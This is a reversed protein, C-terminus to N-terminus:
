CLDDLLGTVNADKLMAGTVVEFNAGTVNQDFTWACPKEFSCKVGLKEDFDIDDVNIPSPSPTHLNDQNRITNKIVTLPNAKMPDLEGNRPQNDPGTMFAAPKSVTKGINNYDLGGGFGRSSNGSAMSM